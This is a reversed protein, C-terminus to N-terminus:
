KASFRIVLALQGNTASTLTKEMNKKFNWRLISMLSYEKVIELEPFSRIEIVGTGNNLM